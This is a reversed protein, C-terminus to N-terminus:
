GLWSRGLLKAHTLAIVSELMDEGLVVVFLNEEVIWHEKARTVVAFLLYVTHVLGAPLGIEHCPVLRSM